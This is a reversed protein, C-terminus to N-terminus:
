ALRKIYDILYNKLNEEAFAYNERIIDGNKPQIELYKEAPCGAGCMPLFKCNLCDEFLFPSFAMQQYYNPEIFFEGDENIYGVRCEPHNILLDCKYVVNSM